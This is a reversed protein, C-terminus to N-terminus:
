FIGLALSSEVGRQSQSDTVAPLSPPSERERVTLKKKRKEGPQKKPKPEKKEKIKKEKKPKDAVPGLLDELSPM